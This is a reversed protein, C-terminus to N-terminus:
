AREHRGAEDHLPDAAGAVARERGPLNPSPLYYTPNPLKLGHDAYGGQLDSCQDGVNLVIDYGLDQEIHKRTGAKYEM